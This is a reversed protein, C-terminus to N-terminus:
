EKTTIVCEREFERIAAKLRDLDSKRIQLKGAGTAKLTRAMGSMFAFWAALDGAESPGCTLAIAHRLFANRAAGFTYASGERENLADIASLLLLDPDFSQEMRWACEQSLNRHAEAAAAELKARLDADVRLGITVTGGQEPEAKKLPRAM